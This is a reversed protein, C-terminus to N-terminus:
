GERVRSSPLLHHVNTCRALGLTLHLGASVQKLTSSCGLESSLVKITSHPAAIEFLEKGIM